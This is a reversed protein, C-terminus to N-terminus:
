KGKEIWNYNQKQITLLKHAAISKDTADWDTEMLVRNAFELESEIFSKLADVLDQCAQRYTDRSPGDGYEGLEHCYGDHVARYAVKANPQMITQVYFYTDKTKHHDLSILDYYVDILSQAEGIVIQEEEM